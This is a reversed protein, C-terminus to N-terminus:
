FVSILVVRAWLNQVDNINWQQVSIGAVMLSLIVDYIYPTPHLSTFKRPVSQFLETIPWCGKPDVAIVSISPVVVADALHFSGCNVIRKHKDPRFSKDNLYAFVIPGSSFAISALEIVVACVVIQAHSVRDGTACKCRFLFAVVWQIINIETYAQSLRVFVIISTM